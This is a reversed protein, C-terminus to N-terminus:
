AAMGSTITMFFLSDDPLRFSAAANGWCLTHHASQPVRKSKMSFMRLKARDDVFLYERASGVGRLREQDEDHAHMSGSLPVAASCRYGVSYRFEM